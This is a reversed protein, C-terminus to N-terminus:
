PGVTKNAMWCPTKQVMYGNGTKPCEKVKRKGWPCFLGKLISSNM